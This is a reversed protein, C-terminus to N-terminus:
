HGRGFSYDYGPELYWGFRRRASPWFMFDLVAEAAFSNMTMGYRRTHVWEPGVGVMFEAKKSLTWPKKFLLDTDWETSHRAFLPTVGVELELWNRIPTFEVAATPGFSSEGKATRSAAGGLELIAVPEKDVDAAQASAASAYFLLSMALFSQTASNQKSAPPMLFRTYM